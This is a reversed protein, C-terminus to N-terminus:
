LMEVGHGQVLTLPSSGFEGLRQRVKLQRRVRDIFFKWCTERSDVLGRGKVENRVSNIINEVEDDPFLDPIEGLSSLVNQKVPRPKTATKSCLSAAAEKKLPEPFGRGRSFNNRWTGMPGLLLTAWFIM